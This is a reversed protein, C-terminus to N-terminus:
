THDSGGDPQRGTLGLLRDQPPAGEPVPVAAPFIGYSRWDEAHPTVQASIGSVLDDTLRTTASCPATPWSSSRASM